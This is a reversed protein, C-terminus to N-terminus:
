KRELEKARKVKMEENAKTWVRKRYWKRISKYASYIISAILIAVNIVVATAVIYLMQYGYDYRDVPNQIFNTFLVLSIVCFIVM